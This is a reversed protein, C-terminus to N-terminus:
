KFHELDDCMAALSRRGIALDRKLTSGAIADPDDSFHYELRQYLNGSQGCYLPRDEDVLRYVLYVGGSRLLDCPQGNRGFEPYHHKRSKADSRRVEVLACALLEEHLEAFYEGRRHEIEDSHIGM